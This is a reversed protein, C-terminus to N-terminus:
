PTQPHRHIYIYIYIYIYRSVSLHIFITCNMSLTGPSCPSCRHIPTGPAHTPPSAHSSHLVYTDIYPCTYIYIYIYICLHINVTVGWIGVVMGGELSMYVGCWTSVYTHIYPCLAHHKHPAHPAYASIYIYIYM